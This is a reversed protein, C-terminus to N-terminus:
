KEKLMTAAWCAMIFALVELGAGISFTYFASLFGEQTYANMAWPITTSISGGDLRYIMAMFVGPLLSVVTCIMSVVSKRLGAFLIALVSFLLFISINQESARAYLELSFRGINKFLEVEGVLAGKKITFFDCFYSVIVLVNALVGVVIKVINIEGRRGCYM